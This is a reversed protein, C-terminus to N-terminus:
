GGIGDIDDRGGSKSGLRARGRGALLLALNEEAEHKIALGPKSGLCKRYWFVASQTRGRHEFALAVAFMAAVLKPSRALAAEATTQAKEVDGSALYARALNAKFLAEWPNIEVAKKFESLAIEWAGMQAFDCGLNNHNYGGWPNQGIAKERRALAEPTWGKRPERRRRLAM